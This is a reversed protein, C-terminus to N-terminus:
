NSKEYKRGIRFDASFDRKKGAAIDTKPNGGGIRGTRKRYIGQNEVALYIWRGSIQSDSAFSFAPYDTRGGNNQLINMGECDTAQKLAKAMVSALAFLKGATEGDMQYLDDFHEKTLILTHGRGSPYRDLIVKFDNNEFITASGIEGAVIKCFLCDSM